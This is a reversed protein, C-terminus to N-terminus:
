TRRAAAALLGAGLWSGLIPSLGVGVLPTPFAGLFPGLAAAVFYAGLGLAAPRATPSARGLILPSLSAAALAVASVALALPSLEGALRFIEEVEPVPALPDPRTWAIGAAAIAAAAGALRVALSARSACLTAALGAAVATAQSADPQVVLLALAALGLLGAWVSRWGVSAFAVVLAPALMEAANLRIPGVQLWRHVGQLGPSVLTLALAAVAALALAMTTRPGGWRAMTLFVAVGVVWAALNLGWARVAVGSEAAVFAGSAVAVLSAAGFVITFLRLGRQPTM